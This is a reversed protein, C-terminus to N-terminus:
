EGQPLAPFSQLYMWVAKMEDDTMQRFYKSLTFDKLQHDSLTM